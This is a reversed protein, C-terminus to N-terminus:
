EEMELIVGAGIIDWSDESVEGPALGDGVMNNQESSPVHGMVGAQLLAADVSQPFLDM